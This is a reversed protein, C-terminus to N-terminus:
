SYDLGISKQSIHLPNAFPGFAVAPKDPFFFEKLVPQIRISKFSIKLGIIVVGLRIKKFNAGTVQFVFFNGIGQSKEAGATQNFSINFIVAMKNIEVQFTILKKTKKLLHFKLGTEQFEHMSAVNTESHRKVM